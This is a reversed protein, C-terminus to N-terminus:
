AKVVKATVATMKTWNVGTYGFTGAEIIKAAFRTGGALDTAVALLVSGNQPILYKGVATVGTVGDTTITFVDGVALHYARAPKNAEIFYDKLETGPIYMAGQIEPAKVLLVEDTLISATTPVVATFLEKNTADEAGLHVFSGNDMAVPNVVSEINGTYVAVAKDLNVMVHQQAM